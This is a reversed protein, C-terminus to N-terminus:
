DKIYMIDNEKLFDLRKYNTSYNKNFWLGRPAIKITSCLNRLVM